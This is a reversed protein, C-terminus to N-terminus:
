DANSYTFFMKKYVSKFKSGNRLEESQKIVANKIQLIQQKSLSKIKTEIENLSSVTIGINYKKVYQAMASQNWVIVPIGAALYLSFKFPANYKLYEGLEGSCSNISDGDWVLGWDGDLNKINNAEFYGKYSVGKPLNMLDLNKGYLNFYVQKSVKIENLKRIFKSKNLNGAFVVKIEESINSSNCPIFDNLYDFYELVEFQCKFNGMGKIQEAMQPSHVILIHATKFLTIDRKFIKKQRISEVDHLIVIIRCRNILKLWCMLIMMIGDTFPYQFYVDTRKIKFCRSIASILMIINNIIRILIFTNDKTQSKISLLSADKFSCFTKIIDARPKSMASYKGKEFFSHKYTDIFYAM